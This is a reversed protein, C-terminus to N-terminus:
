VRSNTPLTLHTYSVAKPTSLKESLLKQSYLLAAGVCFLALAILTISFWYNKKSKKLNEKSM